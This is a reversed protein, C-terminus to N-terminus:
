CPLLRIMYKGLLEKEQMRGLNVRAKKVFIVGLVHFLLKPEFLSLNIEFHLKLLFKM